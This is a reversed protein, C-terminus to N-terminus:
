LGLQAQVYTTRARAGPIGKDEFTERHTIQVRVQDRLIYWTAGASARRIVRAYTGVDVLDFASSLEVRRPVVMYGGELAALHLRARGASFWGVNAPQSADAGLYHYEADLSLRHGRLGGSVELAAIQRIQVPDLAERRGTRHWLYAAAGITSRVRGGEFDGQDRPVEGAPHVDMRGGALVGADSSGEDGRIGELRLQDFSRSLFARGVAASWLAKRATNWGDVKLSLLRRPTGYDRDGAFSREVLSRRSATTLYSRSFPGKQSGVTLRLRRPEFRRYQLYTDRFNIRDGTTLPSLDITFLGTWQRTLEGRIGVIMRRFYTRDDRQDDAQETREHQLQMYASLTIRRSPAASQAFADAPWAPACACAGALILSLRTV